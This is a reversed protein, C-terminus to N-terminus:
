NIFKMYTSLPKLLNEQGSRELIGQIIASLRDPEVIYEEKHDRKYDESKCLLLRYAFLWSFIEEEDSFREPILEPNTLYDMNWIIHALEHAIHLRMDCPNQQAHDFPIRILSYKDYITICAKDKIQSPYTFISYHINKKRFLYIEIARISHALYNDKKVVGFLDIAEEVNM